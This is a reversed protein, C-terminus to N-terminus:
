KDGSHSVNTWRGETWKKTPKLDAALTAELMKKMAGGTNDAWELVRDASFVCFTALAADV